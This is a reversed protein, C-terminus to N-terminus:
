KSATLPLRLAFSIWGQSSTVEITGQLYQVLKKVLALGLGTGSNQGIESKTIQSYSDFICTNKIKNQYILDFQEFIRSKDQTPIKSSFNSITIQLCPIEHIASSLELLVDENILSNITTTHATVMIQEDLPTHKCANNLLESIIRTLIAIDTVITPLEAPIEVSLIKQQTQAFKKFKDVLCPLWYQLQISTFELPYNDTDILRMNLLDDVLGLEREYEYHLISLYRDILPEELKFMGQQDLINELMSIAIKINSLPTLIEDFIATCFDEKMKNLRQLQSIEIELQRVHEVTINNEETLQCQMDDPFVIIAGTIENKSNKLLSLSNTVATTKGDKTILLIRNGLYTNKQQFASIIMNQVPLQTQEDILKIVETLTQDKADNFQWGTIAEAVQNLYKVRFQSDVIIVGDERQPLVTNFLQEHKYRALATQIAVYLEQERVPKLIYGFPVTLMAREVTSKDSHATIYIIPIQLCNWIQEAAQIGDMEGKLWIDMLILGPRLENAKEIATEASNAIDIVTYELSELIKQLNLAVLNEDEVILIQINKNKQTDSLFSITNM